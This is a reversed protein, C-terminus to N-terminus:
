AHLCGNSRIWRGWFSHNRINKTPDLGMKKAYTLSECVGALSGALAIQNAM